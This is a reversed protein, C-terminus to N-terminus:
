SRTHVVRKIGGEKLPWQRFNLLLGVEYGSFRLQGHKGANELATMGNLHVILDHPGEHRDPLDKLRHRRILSERAQLIGASEMAVAQIGNFRGQRLTWSGPTM